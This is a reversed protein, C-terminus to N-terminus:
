TTASSGHDAPVYKLGDMQNHGAKITGYCQEIFARAERSVDTRALVIEFQRKIHDEGREVEAIIAHDNKSSIADRLDLFLRHAGATLSGSDVPDGGHAYVFQQMQDVMYGRESARSNFVDHFNQSDIEKAAKRYGDASDITVKILSNVAENDNFSYIM